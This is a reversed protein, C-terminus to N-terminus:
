ISRRAACAGQRRDGDREVNGGRWKAPSRRPCPLSLRDPLPRSNAAGSAGMVRMDGGANVVAERVGHGRLTAIARDVAFGKAIGGLDIAIGASFRVRNDPLLEVASFTGREVHELDRSPLVGRQM